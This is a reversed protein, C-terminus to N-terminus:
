IEPDFVTAKPAEPFQGEKEAAKRWQEMLPEYEDTGAKSIALEYLSDLTPEGGRGPSSPPVVGAMQTRVSQDVYAGMVNGFEAIAADIATDLQKAQEDSLTSPDVLLDPPLEVTIFKELQTLQPATQRLRALKREWLKYDALESRAEDLNAVSETHSTKLSDIEGQVAELSSQLEMMQTSKAGDQAQLAKYKEQLDQHVVQLGKFKKEYDAPPQTPGTPEGAAPPAAPPAPTPTVTQAGTAPAGPQPAATPDNNSM